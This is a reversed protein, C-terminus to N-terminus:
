RKEMGSPQQTVQQAVLSGNGGDKLDHWVNAPALFTSGPKVQLTEEGSDDLYFTGEGEIVTFIQDGTPHRHYGLQQGAKFYYVDMTLADTKIITVKAVADDKLQKSANIDGNQIAM